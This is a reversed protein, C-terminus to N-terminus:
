FWFTIKLFTCKFVTDFDNMDVCMCVCSTCSMCAKQRNSNILIKTAKETEKVRNTISQVYVFYKEGNQLITILKNTTVSVCRLMNHACCEIFRAINIHFRHLVTLFTTNCLCRCRFFFSKNWVFTLYAFGLWTSVLIFAYFVLFVRSFVFARVSRINRFNLSM